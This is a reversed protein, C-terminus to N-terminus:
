AEDREEFEYIKALIDTPWDKTMSRIRDIVERLNEDGLPTFYGFDFEKLKRTDAERDWAWTGTGRVEIYKNLHQHLRKAQHISTKFALTGFKRQTALRVIAMGGAKGKPPIDVGALRGIFTDSNRILLPKRQRAPAKAVAPVADAQRRRALKGGTPM